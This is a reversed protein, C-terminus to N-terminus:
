RIPRPVSGILPTTIVFNDINHDTIRFSRQALVRGLQPQDTLTLTYAGSTLNTLLFRGSETIVGASAGVDDLSLGLSAKEVLAGSRDRVEGRVCYVAVPRLRIDIGVLHRGADLAVPNGKEANVASPHFTLAFDTAARCCSQCSPSASPPSTRAHARVRYRGSPLDEGGPLVSICYEGRENTVAGFTTNAAVPFADRVANVVAFKVPRAQADLVRGSISCDRQATREGASVLPRSVVISAAVCVAALPQLGFLM